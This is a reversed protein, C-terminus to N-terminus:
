AQTAPVTWVAGRASLRLGDGVRAPTDPPMHARLIVDGPARVALEIRDGRYVRRTVTVPVGDDAATFMHPRVVALRRGHASHALELEGLITRMRAGDAEGAVLNVSGMFGAVFGSAPREYLAEPRGLQQLEGDRLIAIRDAIAFAEDIDHSIFVVTCGRARLAEVVRERVVGRLAPDLSGFPEDMLLASPAPALARALAIRQQQGGSLAAPLRDAYEALEVQELMAKVREARADRPLHRLGFAINRAASLHPFLAFEQFVFGVGRKEPPRHLGGDAVLADDLRVRGGRAREFGAIARLASTKGSGSPGVLGLWEGPQVELDLGALAITEGYCVRLKELVIKM